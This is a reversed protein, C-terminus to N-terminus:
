GSLLHATLGHITIVFYGIFLIILISFTVAVQRLLEGIGIYVAIQASFSFLLYIFFIGALVVALGVPLGFWLMLQKLILRRVHTEEVGMNRLVRFRYKYKGGDYLQQLALITFCIVFLVIACYILATQMVYIASSTDNMQRTSTQIEYYAGGEEVPYNEYFLEELEGSVTYSLPTKTKMYQFTNASCLGEGVADPIIYIVDRYGYLTEGLEYKLPQNQGINLEGMDTLITNHEKMFRCITNESTTSIWQVAFENDALSIGKEGIMTLLHNYDSLSVATVAEGGSVDYFDTKKLFYTRFTCKDAIEIENEALFEDMLHYDEQPLDAIDDVKAYGSYMQIDYPTRKDLFGSAWGVLVPTLFFLAISFTLTLCIMTMAKTNTKLKSLVQGLFFLNEQHYLFKPSNQKLAALWKYFLFFFANVLFIVCWVLFMIYINYAGTDMPLSFRMKMVPLLGVFLMEMIGMLGSMGLYGAMSKKRAFFCWLVSATLTVWPVAMCGLCWFQVVGSFRSSFYWTLTRVGYLGALFQILLNVAIIRGQWKDPSAGEENEREARLMDIIKTKRVTRVQFLGTIVFCLCFFAATLLVTDPFLMFSFRFPKQFMKLLMATVFQSFVTGLLIGAALAIFGMVLTEMFFLWATLRQEMGMISQVAFEKQRRYFMFRNVYQVLFILLLTILCITIKMWNGLTEINFEQGIDPKYFRSSISLFAYFLAVCITLTVIYILYDNVSRRVSRVALKVYM